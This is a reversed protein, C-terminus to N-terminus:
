RVEWVDGKTSAVQRGGKDQDRSINRSLFSPMGRYTKRKSPNDISWQRLTKVKQPVDVAPFSEQLEEVKIQLVPYEQGKKNTPITCFIEGNSTTSDEPAGSTSKIDQEQEQEQTGFESVRALTQEVRRSTFGKVIPYHNLFEKILHSNHLSELQKAAAKQNKEGKGQYFFMNRVWITSNQTDWSALGLESLTDLTQEVRKSSLGTELSIINPPLYYIGSVHSHQNTFLYLFLLKGPPSLSKVKPDTWTSTDVTRYL